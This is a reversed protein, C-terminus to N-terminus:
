LMELFQAALDSRAPGVDNRPRVQEIQFLTPGNLMAPGYVRFRLRRRVRRSYGKSAKRMLARLQVYGGLSLGHFAGIFSLSAIASIIRQRMTSGVRAAISSACTKLRPALRLM